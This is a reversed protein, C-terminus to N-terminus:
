LLGFIGRKQKKNKKKAEQKAEEEQDKQQQRGANQQNNRKVIGGLQAGLSKDEGKNQSGTIAPGSLPGGFLGGSPDLSASRVAKLGEASPAVSFKKFNLPFQGM